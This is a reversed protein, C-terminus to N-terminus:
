EGMLYESNNLSKSSPISSFKERYITHFPRSELVDSPISEKTLETIGISSISSNQLNQKHGSAAGQKSYNFSLYEFEDRGQPNDGQHYPQPTFFSTSTTTM